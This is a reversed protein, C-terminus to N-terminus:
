VIEVILEHHQNTASVMSQDGDEIEKSIAGSKHMHSHSGERFIAGSNAPVNQIGCLDKNQFIIM